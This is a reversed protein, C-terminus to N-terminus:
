SGGSVPAPTPAPAPSTASPAQSPAQLPTTSGDDTSQSAGSSQPAAGQTAAPNTAAAAHAHFAHWTLASVGGALLVAGSILWRNARHAMDLGLDRVYARRSRAANEAHHTDHRM